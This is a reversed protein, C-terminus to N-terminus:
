AHRLIKTLTGVLEACLLNLLYLKDRHINSDLYAIKSARCIENIVTKGYLSLDVFLYPQM